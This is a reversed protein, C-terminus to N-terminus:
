ILLEAHSLILKYSWINIYCSHFIAHFMEFWFAQIIGKITHCWIFIDHLILPYFTLYSRPYPFQSPFLRALIHTNYKKYHPKSHFNSTFNFSSFNFIVKPCNSTTNYKKKHAKIFKLQHVHHYHKKALPTILSHCAENDLPFGCDIINVLLDCRILKTIYIYIYLMWVFYAIM